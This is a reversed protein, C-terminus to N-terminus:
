GCAGVFMARGTLWADAETGLTIGRFAGKVNGWADASAAGLSLRSAAGDATACMTLRAQFNEPMEALDPARGAEDQHAHHGHEEHRDHLRRRAGLDIDAPMTRPSHSMNM